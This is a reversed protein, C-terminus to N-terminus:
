ITTGVEVAISESIHCTRYKMPRSRAVFTEFFSVAVKLVGGNVVGLLHVAPVPLGCSGKGTDVLKSEATTQNQSSIRAPSKIIVKRSKRIYM